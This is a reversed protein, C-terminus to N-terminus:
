FGMGPELAFVHGRYKRGDTINGVSNMRGKLCKCGGCAHCFKDENSRGSVYIGDVFNAEQTALEGDEKILM